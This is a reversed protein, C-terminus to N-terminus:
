GAKLAAGAARLWRLRPELLILTSVLIPLVVNLYMLPALEPRRELAPTLGLGVAQVAIAVAAAILIRQWALRRNYEGSLISALGVFAFTLALLPSTVRRHAEARFKLVNQRDDASDGPSLLEHLFREGPERWRPGRMANFQGLDLAYRDFHLLSVRERTADFEQRNGRFMVFQPGEPGGLLAGREAMMTVRKETDRSDHVLIGLLEGSRERARVYVTLGDAVDNFTGEQLLIAAYNGRVAAQQDKFARFGAPMFYLALTYGVLTIIIALLIGPAALSMPGLGAARMVVLESDANLRYYVFIIACFLATPLILALFGPLLLMTVTFFTTASLRRTIILDLLRLSQTLWVVGTLAVTVFVVPGVLQRLVYRTAGSM